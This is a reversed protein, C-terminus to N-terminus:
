NSLNCGYPALRSLRDIRDKGKFKGLYKQFYQCGKPQNGMKLHARGIEKLYKASRKLKYAENYASVVKSWNGSSKAARAKDLAAQLREAKSKGAEAAPAPKAPKNPKAATPKQAKHKPAKPKRPKARPNKPKRPKRPTAAAMAAPDAGSDGGAKESASATGAEPATGATGAEPATGSTAPATGATSGGQAATATPKAAVAVEPSTPEPAARVADSRAEPPRSPADVAATAAGAAGDEAAVTTKPEAAAPDTSATPGPEDAPATKAPQNGDSPPDEDATAGATNTAVNAPADGKDGGILGGAWAGAVMAAVILVAAAIYPGKSRPPLLDAAALGAETHAPDPSGLRPVLGSTEAESLMRTENEHMAARPGAAPAVADGDPSTSNTGSLDPGTGTWTARPVRGRLKNELRDLEKYVDLANAFRKNRDKAMLKNVLAVLDPDVNDVYRNIDPIPETLHKTVVGIPSDGTYPLTNTLLQFLIIGLSYLDARSDLKEGRAQEPAMYEPTGCVVGAVTQWSNKDDDAHADQIKAIGFDLVKVHDKDVRRDELMINEPKLDRHIIGAAHAEDLASCVQKLIRFIREYSLPYESFVVDALDRGDIFEMAIFLSGNEAQGFDIVQIINAHNLRSSARAERHFRRSLTPDSLLHRHLLKLAVPKGLSIQEAKYIAGMAGSGINEGILFNGAIIKGTLTGTSEIPVDEM